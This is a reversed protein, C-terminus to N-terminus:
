WWVMVGNCIAMMPPKLRCAAHVMPYTTAACRCYIVPLYPASEKKEADKKKANRGSSAQATHNATRIPRNYTLICLDARCFGTHTRGHQNQKLQRSTKTKRLEQNSDGPAEWPHADAAVLVEWLRAAEVSAKPIARVKTTAM